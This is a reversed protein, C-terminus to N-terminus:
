RSRKTNADPRSAGGSNESAPTSVVAGVKLDPVLNLDPEAVRVILVVTFVFAALPGGATVWKTNVQIMGALGSAIGGAALGVFIAFVGVQFRTPNPIVMAIVLAAVIATWGLVFSNQLAAWVSAQGAAAAPALTTAADTPRPRRGM